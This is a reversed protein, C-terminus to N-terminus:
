GVEPRRLYTLFAAPTTGPTGVANYTNLAAIKLCDADIKNAITAAAPRLYRNSFDDASLALESSSFQFDVGFQTSLTVPLTSDTVGELNVAQGLRGIFRPPVRVNLTNGIKAGNKAFQDDYGRYFRAAAKLNNEIIRLCEFTIFQTTLLTNAAM